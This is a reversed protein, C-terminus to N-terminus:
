DEIGIPSEGQGMTEPQDVIPLYPAPHTFTGWWIGVQPLTGPLLWEPGSNLIYRKPFPLVLPKLASRFKSRFPLRRLNRGLYKPHTKLDIVM